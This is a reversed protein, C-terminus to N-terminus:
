RQPYELLNTLPHPRIYEGFEPLYKNPIENCKIESVSIPAKYGLAIEVQCVFGDEAETFIHRLETEGKKVLELRSASASAYLWTEVSRSNDVDVCLAFFLNSENRCAFFLPRDYFGYIETIKFNKVPTKTDIM